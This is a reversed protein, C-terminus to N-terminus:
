VDAAFGSEATPPSTTSVSPTTSKNMRSLKNRTPSFSPTLATPVPTRDIIQVKRVAGTEKGMASPQGENMKM